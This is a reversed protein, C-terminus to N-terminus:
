DVEASVKSAKPEPNCGQGDCIDFLTTDISSALGM